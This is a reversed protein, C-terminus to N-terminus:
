ELYLDILGPPTELLITMKEKDISIIFDEQFPILVEKENYEIELLPNNHIEAIRKVKGLPGYNKDTVTYGSIRLTDNDEDSAEGLEEMNIYVDCGQLKQVDETSDITDILVLWEQDNKIRLSNLQFPVQEGQLEIFLYSPNPSYYIQWQPSIRLVMEGAIGHPKIFTGIKVKETKNNM